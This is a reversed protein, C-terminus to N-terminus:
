DDSDGKKWGMDALRRTESILWGQYHPWLPELQDNTWEAARLSQQVEGWATSDWDTTAPDLPEGFEEVFLKADRRAHGEVIGELISIM